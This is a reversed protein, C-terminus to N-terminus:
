AEELKVRYVGAGLSKGKIDYLKGKWMVQGDSQLLMSRFVRTTVTTHNQGPAGCIFDTAERARRITDEAQRGRATQARM